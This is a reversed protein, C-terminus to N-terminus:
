ATGDRKMQRELARRKLVSLRVACVCMAITAVGVGLQVAAEIRALTILSFAAVLTSAAWDVFRKFSDM